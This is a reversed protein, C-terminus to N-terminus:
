VSARNLPRRQHFVAEVVKKPVANQGKRLDADRERRKRQTEQLTPCALSQSRRGVM